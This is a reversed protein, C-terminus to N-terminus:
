GQLRGSLQGRLTAISTVSAGVYAARAVDIAHDLDARYTANGVLGEDAAATREEYLERLHGAAHAAIVLSDTPTM